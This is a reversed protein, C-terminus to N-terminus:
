WAEALLAETFRKAGAASLHTPDVWFSPSDLEVKPVITKGYHALEAVEAKLPERDYWGPVVLFSFPVRHQACIAVLDALYTGESFRAKEEGAPARGPYFAGQRAMYGATTDLGPAEETVWLSRFAADFGKVFFPLWVELAAETRAKFEPRLLLADALTVRRQAAGLGRAADRLTALYKFAQHRYLIDKASPAEILVRGIRKHALLDRLVIARTGMGYAPVALNLARESQRRANILPVDVDNLTRSSGIFVTDYGTVAPDFIKKQIWVYRPGALFYKLQPAAEFITVSAVGGLLLFLGVKAIFRM